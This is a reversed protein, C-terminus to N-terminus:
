RWRRGGNGNAHLRRQVEDTVSFGFVVAPLDHLAPADVATQVLRAPPLGPCKRLTERSRRERDGVRARKATGDLRRLDDEVPPGVDRNELQGVEVLHGPSTVLPRRRRLLDSSRR